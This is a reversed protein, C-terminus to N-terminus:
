MMQRLLCASSLRSRSMTLLAFTAHHPVLTQGQRDFVPPNSTPCLRLLDPASENQKMWKGIQQECNRHLRCAVTGAFAASPMTM